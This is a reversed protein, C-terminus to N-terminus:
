RWANLLLAQIKMLEIAHEITIGKKEAIKRAEEYRNCCDDVFTM